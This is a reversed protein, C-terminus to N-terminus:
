LLNWDKYNSLVEEIGALKYKTIPNLTRKLEDKDFRINSKELLAGLLARTSPPYKLALELVLRVQKSDFRKLIDQFRICSIELTADPIKTIRKLSDLVQLFPINKKTIPNKQKLFVISYKGRKLAPRVDNKGIQITYSVQSTLGLTHYISLGTLYGLPKNESGLIDKVIEYQSPGIEGFSTQEPKYYKGKAIKKILQRETLRNLAKIIAQQKELGVDLFESYTFVYGSPLQRVRQEIKGAITM